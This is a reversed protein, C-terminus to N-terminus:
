KKKKFEIFRFIFYVVITAVIRLLMQMFDFSKNSIVDIIVMAILIGVLIPLDNKIKEKM